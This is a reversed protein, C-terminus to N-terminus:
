RVEFELVFQFSVMDVGESHGEPLSLLARAACCALPVMHSILAKM